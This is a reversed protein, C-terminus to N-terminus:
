TLDHLFRSHTSGAEREGGFFGDARRAGLWASAESVDDGGFPPPECGADGPPGGDFRLAHGTQGAPMGTQPYNEPHLETPYLYNLFSELPLCACAADRACM